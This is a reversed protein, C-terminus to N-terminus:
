IEHSVGLSAAVYETECTSLTVIPQKKSLWTFATGGMFFAYGMTSKRNDIDGYWDIDVYGALEFIDTKQYLLGLDETGKVYRLIMKMVKLHSHRPDEM